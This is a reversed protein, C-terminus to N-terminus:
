LGRSDVKAHVIMKKADNAIVLIDQIGEDVGNSDKGCISFCLLTRRRQIQDLLQPLLQSHVQGFRLLHASKVLPAQQQTNCSSLARLIGERWGSVASGFCLKSLLNTCTGPATYEIQMNGLLASGDPCALHVSCATHRLALTGRKM